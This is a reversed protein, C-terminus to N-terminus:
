VRSIWSARRLSPLVPVQATDTCVVGVWFRGEEGTTERLMTEYDGLLWSTHGVSTSITPDLTRARHHAIRSAALRECAEERYDEAHGNAVVDGLAFVHRGAELQLCRKAPDVDEISEM